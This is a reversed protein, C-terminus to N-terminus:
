SFTHLDAYVRDYVHIYVHAYANACPHITYLRTHQCIDAILQYILRLEVEILGIYEGCILSDDSDLDDKAFLGFTSSYPSHTKAAHALSNIEGVYSHMTIPHSNCFFAQLQTETCVPAKDRRVEQVVECEGLLCRRRANELLSYVGQAQVISEGIM